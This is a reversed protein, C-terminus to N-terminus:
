PARSTLRTRASIGMGLGLSRWARAPLFNRHVCAITDKDDQTDQKDDGEAPVEEGGIAGRIQLQDAGDIGVLYHDARADGAPDLSQINILSVVYLGSLQDGSNLAIVQRRGLSSGLCGRDTLVEFQLSSTVGFALRASAHGALYGIGFGLQATGLRGLHLCLGLVFM